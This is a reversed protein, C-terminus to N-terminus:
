NQIVIYIYKSATHKIQVSELPGHFGFTESHSWFPGRSLLVHVVFVEGAGKETKELEQAFAM